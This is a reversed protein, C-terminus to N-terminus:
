LHSSWVRMWKEAAFGTAFGSKSLPERYRTLDIAPPDQKLLYILRNPTTVLIDIPFFFPCFMLFLCLIFCIFLPRLFVLELGMQLLHLVAPGM